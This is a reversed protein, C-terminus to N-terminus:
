KLARIATISHLQYLRKYLRALVYKRKHNALELDVLKQVEAPTKCAAIYKNLAPWSEFAPHNYVYKTPHYQKM